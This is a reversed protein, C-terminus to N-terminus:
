KRDSHSKAIVLLIQLQFGLLLVGLASVAIAAINLSSAMGQSSTRAQREAKSLPETFSATQVVLDLTLRGLSSILAM